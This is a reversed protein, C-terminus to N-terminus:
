KLAKTCTEVGEKSNGFYVWVFKERKFNSKSLVLRFSTTLTVSLLALLHHAFRYISAEDIERVVYHLTQFIM